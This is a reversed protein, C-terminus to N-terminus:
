RSSSISGTVLGPTRIANLLEFTYPRWQWSATLWRSRLEDEVIDCYWIRDESDAGRVLEPHETPRGDTWRFSAKM